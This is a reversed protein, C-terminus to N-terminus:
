GMFLAVTIAYLGSIILVAQIIATFMIKADQKAM